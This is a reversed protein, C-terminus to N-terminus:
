PAVRKHPPQLGPRFLAEYTEIDPLGSVEALTAMAGIANALLWRRPASREISYAWCLMPLAPRADRRTLSRVISEWIPPAYPRPLHAILVGMARGSLPVRDFWTDLATAPAGFAQLDAYLVAPDAWFQSEAALRNAEQAMLQAQYRPDNALEALLDQASPSTSDTM